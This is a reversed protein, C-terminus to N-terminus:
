YMCSPMPGPFEHGVEGEIFSLAGEVELAVELRTGTVGKGFSPEPLPLKSSHNERVESPSSSM